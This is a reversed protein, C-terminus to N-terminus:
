GKKGKQFVGFLRSLIGKKEPAPTAEPTQKSRETSGQKQRTDQGGETRGPPKRGKRRSGGRDGEPRGHQKREGQPKEGPKRGRSREGEASRATSGSKGSDYRKKYLAMREDFSLLSLDQEESLPAQNRGPKGTAIKQGGAM